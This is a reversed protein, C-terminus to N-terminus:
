NLHHEMNWGLKFGILVELELHLLVKTLFLGLIKGQVGVTVFEAEKTKWSIWLLVLVSRM